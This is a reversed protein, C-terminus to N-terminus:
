SLVWHLATGPTQLSTPNGEGLLNLPPAPAATGLAALAGPSRQQGLCQLSLSLLLHM